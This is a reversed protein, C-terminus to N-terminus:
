LDDPKSALVKVRWTTEGARRLPKKKGREQPQEQIRPSLCLEQRFTMGALIVSFALVGM